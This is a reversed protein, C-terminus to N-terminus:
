GKARLPRAPASREKHGHSITLLGHSVRSTRPRVAGQPRALREHDRIPVVRPCLVLRQM